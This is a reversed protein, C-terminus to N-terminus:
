LVSNVRDFSLPSFQIKVLSLPNLKYNPRIEKPDPIAFGTPDKFLDTVIMQGNIEKIPDKLALLAGDVHMFTVFGYEKSRRTVKDYVVYADKVPGYLSFFFRLTASNTASSLKFVFLKRKTPDRNAICRIADLIDVHHFITVKLVELLQDKTFRQLLKCADEPTLKPIVVNPSYNSFSNNTYYEM